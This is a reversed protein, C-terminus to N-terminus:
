ACSRSGRIVVNGDAEPFRSDEILCVLLRASLVASDVFFLARDLQLAVRRFDVPVPCIM